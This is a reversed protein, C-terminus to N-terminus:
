GPGRHHAARPALPCSRRDAGRLRAPRCSLRPRYGRLHKAFAEQLRRTKSQGTKATAGAPSDMLRTTLQGSLVNVAAFTYVLAKNDATGVVPRHGKVGLTTQLTPVMPFRAEDQSLLVCDGAAAMIKLEALEERAIAQKDPDGRLFRYTPRYPRIGLRHCFERM